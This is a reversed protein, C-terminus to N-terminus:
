FNHKYFYIHDFLGIKCCAPEDPEPESDTLNFLEDIPFKEDEIRVSTSMAALSEFTTDDVDILVDRLPVSM